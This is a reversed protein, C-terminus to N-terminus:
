IFKAFEALNSLYLTIGPLISENSSVTRTNTDLVGYVTNNLDKVQDHAPGTLKWQLSASLYLVNSSINTYDAGSIEMIDKASGGTRKTFYRILFGRSYDQQSPIPYYPQPIIEKQLFSFKNNTISDYEFNSIYPAPILFSGSSQNSSTTGVKVLQQSDPTHTAGTYYKQDYTTHYIGQYPKGTKAEVFQGGPTYQNETIKSKPYYM